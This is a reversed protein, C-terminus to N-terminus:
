LRKYQVGIIKAVDAISLTLSSTWLVLRELLAAEIDYLKELITWLASCVILQYTVERCDRYRGDVAMPWAIAQYLQRSGLGSCVLGECSPM